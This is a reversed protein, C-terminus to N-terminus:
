AYQAEERTSKLEEFDIEQVFEPLDGVWVRVVPVKTGSRREVEVQVPTKEEYTKGLPIATGGQYVLTHYISQLPDGAPPDVGAFIQLLLKDSRTELYYTLRESKREQRRLLPDFEDTLRVYYADAAPEVISFGQRVSKLYSYVAAGHAIAEDPVPFNLFTKDEGWYHRLAEQLPLFRAMGGVPFFYHIAEKSIESEELLETIPRLANKAEDGETLFLAMLTEYEQRTLDVAFPYEKGRINPPQTLFSIEEEDFELEMNLEIKLREAENILDYRLALREEESLELQELAPFRQLLCPYLFERALCLDFDEGGFQNHRSIALVNFQLNDLSPAGHPDRWALEVITLDLTGGGIDYVLVRTASQPDIEIDRAQLGRRMDWTIFALLAAIPESILLRERQESSLRDLELNALARDIARLTDRRQNTTYSAPVTVTLEDLTYGSELAQRLVEELYLASVQAPTQEIVPLVLDRGMLRKVARICRTADHHPGKEKAWRGVIPARETPFFAVSPLHNLEPTDPLKPQELKLVETEITDPDKGQYARAILTTTTGLDIGFAPM